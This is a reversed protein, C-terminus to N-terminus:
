CVASATREALERTHDDIVDIAAMVHVDAGIRSSMSIDRAVQESTFERARTKAEGVVMRGARIGALDIEAPPRDPFTVNIGPLIRTRDDIRELAAIALVHPLM